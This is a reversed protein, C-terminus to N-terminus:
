VIKPTNLGMHKMIKEATEFNIRLKRSLYARSLKGHQKFLPIALAVLKDFSANAVPEGKSLQIM